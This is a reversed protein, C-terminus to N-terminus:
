ACPLPQGRPVRQRQADVRDAPGQDGLVRAFESLAHEPDAVHEITEFSVVLDFEGDAFPLESVDGVRFDLGYRGRAHAVTAADVDVGIVNEAGSAALMATGYGEGSAADLVRRGPALRAALLYRALHEALVLEGAFAEPVLREGTAELPPPAEPM